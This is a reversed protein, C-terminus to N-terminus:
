GAARKGGRSLQARLREFEEHSKFHIVIKGRGGAGSRLDVRVGLVGRLEQEMVRQHESRTRGRPRSTRGDAGVVALRQGDHERVHQGVADETQRVSWGEAEVRAAFAAQEREEGLPLLARAHGQTIAGRRLAQQVTEPLELLRILNAVTSRDLQLRRALEEQTCRYRQLYQQFSAAKELAGLDRRQLNEVLAIEAMGQEDVERVQAPVQSLGAIIAARLRREGAVLQFRPGSRRVVIPQLLGHATISDALSRIEAEDFEQRPQFPNSDVDYVSVLTLGGAPATPSSAVSASPSAAGVPQTYSVPELPRGLLAELGRGLRREKNTM